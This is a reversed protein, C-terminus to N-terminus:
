DWRDMRPPDVVRNDPDPSGLGVPIDRRARSNGVLTRDKDIASKEMHFRVLIDKKAPSNGVLTRGRDFGFVGIRFREPIDRGLTIWRERIVRLM